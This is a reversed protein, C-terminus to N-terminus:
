LCLVRRPRDRPPMEAYAKELFQKVSGRIEELSIIADLYGADLYHGIGTSDHAFEKLTERSAAPLDQNEALLDIAKIGYITIDATSLALIRDPDFGAGGMAYFGATYAKRMVICLHPVSLTALTSFVLAGHHIIGAQEADKGVMFGPLDALFVLPISFADCLSAFAAMKRCSEPFLIGGRVSSNSAIIGVPMGAVRAFATILEGAYAGRHELLSDEDVFSELVRHTDFIRNPDDPIRCAGYPSGRAPQVPQGRPPADRFSLPFYGVYRRVWQLAEKDSAALLDCTGSCEAHMRAGGYDEYSSQDGTMLKVMDPRALSMGAREVMVVTDCEAVPYTLTTAIPRFVVAIRPVVGSLQAFRAFIRGAGRPDIFTQLIAFPIATTEMAVRGPRDALHIVPLRETEALDLLALEQQLVDFPDTKRTAEPNIAIVCVRRGDITGTGGILESDGTEGHPTFSGPDLLWGLREAM